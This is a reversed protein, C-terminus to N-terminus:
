EDSCYRYGIGHITLIFQPRAPDPEIKKRVRAVHQDLTRTTGLYATGWVANLLQDRTLVRGSHAHFFQLLKMETASLRFRAEGQRGRFTGPDIVAAGFNFPQCASSPPPGTAAPIRSRRLAAAVRALLEHIGFPKTIYDDAGLQLGVVKDIEAGKATLMIIPVRPNMARLRRCVEYGDVEPMMIDLLVLDVPEKAFLALARRGDTAKLFAYGESALTDALGDLIHPDDEAILIRPASM